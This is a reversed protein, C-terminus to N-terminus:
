VSGKRLRMRVTSDLPVRLSIILVSLFIVFNNRSFFDINLSMVLFISVFVFLLRRTEKSVQVKNKRISVFIRYIFMGFILLGILGFPLLFSMFSIDSTYIDSGLFFSTYPRGLGQGIPFYQMINQWYHEYIDLRENVLASVYLSTIDGSGFIRLEILASVREDISSIAVVLLVIGFVVVLIRAFTKLVIRFNITLFISAVLFLSYGILMTRNLTNFMALFSVIFAVLLVRKEVKWEKCFLSLLVFFALSANTWYLRGHLLIIAQLDESASFSAEIIHPALHHIYLAAFGSLGAAVVLGKVWKVLCISTGAAFLLLAVMFPMFYRLHMVALKISVDNKAASFIIYILIVCAFVFGLFPEQMKQEVLIKLPLIGFLLLWIIEFANLTVDFLRVHLIQGFPLVALLMVFWFVGQDFINNSIRMSHCGYSRIGSFFVECSVFDKNIGALQFM